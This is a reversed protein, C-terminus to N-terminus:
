FETETGTDLVIEFGIQIRSYPSFLHILYRLVLRGRFLAVSGSAFAETMRDQM